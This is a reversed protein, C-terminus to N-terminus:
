GITESFGHITPQHKNYLTFIYTIETKLFIHPREGFSNLGDHAVFWAASRNAWSFTFRLCHHAFGPFLVAVSVLLLFHSPKVFM